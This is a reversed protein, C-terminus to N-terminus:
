KKNKIFEMLELADAFGRIYCLEEARCRIEDIDESELELKKFDEDNLAAGCRQCICDKILNNM